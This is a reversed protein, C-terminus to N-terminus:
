LFDSTDEFNAKQLHKSSLPISVICVFEIDCYTSLVLLHQGAKLCGIFNNSNQGMAPLLLAM